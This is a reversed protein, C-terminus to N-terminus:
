QVGLKAKETEMYDVYQKVKDVGWQDILGYLKDQTMQSYDYLMQKKSVPEQRYPNTNKYQAKAENSVLSLREKMLDTVVDMRNKNM